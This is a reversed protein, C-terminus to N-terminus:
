TRSSRGKATVCRSRRQIIGRAISLVLMGHLMKLGKGADQLGVGIAPVVLEVIGLARLSRNRVCQAPCMCPSLEELQDIDSGICPASFLAAAIEGTANAATLRMSASNSISRPIVAQAGFLSM